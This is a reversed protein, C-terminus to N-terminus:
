MDAAEQYYRKALRKYKLDLRLMVAGRNPQGYVIISNLPAYVASALASLDEEGEVIIKIRAGIKKSFIKRCTNMLESTLVGPPNAIKITKAEFGRLIRKQNKPIPRRQRVFDIFSVDPIIKRGLLLLTTVDGVSILPAGDRELSEILKRFSLLRGFPRKLKRRLEPTIRKDRM